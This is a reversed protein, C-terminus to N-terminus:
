CGVANGALSHMWDLQKEHSCVREQMQHIVHTTQELMSAVATATSSGKYLWAVAEQLRQEVDMVANMLQEQPSDSAQSSSSQSANRAPSAKASSCGLTCALDVMSKVSLELEKLVHQGEGGEGHLEQLKKSLDKSRSVLSDVEQMQM